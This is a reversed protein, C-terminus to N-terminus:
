FFFNSGQVAAAEENEIGVPKKCGSTVSVEHCQFFQSLPRTHPHSVKSM